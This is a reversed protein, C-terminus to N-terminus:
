SLNIKVRLGLRFVTSISVQAPVLPCSTLEMATQGPSPCPVALLPPATLMPMRRRATAIAM